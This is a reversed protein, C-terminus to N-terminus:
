SQKLRSKDAYMLEDAESWAGRIGSAAHRMAFGVSARVEAAQLAGRTRELLADAGAHDCEVGIVGFEDGGLRAVVDTSRAADRLADGARKILADGAAHGQTDNLNKLDNIDIIIVAAPHGYRACREEEAALLMDWGRRNYLGTMADTLAEAEFREARRQEDVSKLEMQLVASLISGLLTLLEEDAEISAPKEAPHIGCLTGFLSGDKHRIPVGAYANIKVQQRIPACKYAAIADASHAITPGNGQVMESCFSDAWHFVEGSHVGYGHDEAQLVIWDDGETRTIMWLDFGLRRRLFALVERSCSEFDNTVPTDM